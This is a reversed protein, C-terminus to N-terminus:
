AIKGLLNALPASLHLRLDGQALVLPWHLPWVFSAPAPPKSLPPIILSTTMNPLPFQILNFFFYLGGHQYKLKNQLSHCRLHPSLLGDGSAVQRKSWSKPPQLRRSWTADVSHSHPLMGLGLGRDGVLSVGQGLLHERLLDLLLHPKSTFM